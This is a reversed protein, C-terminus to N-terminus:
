APRGALVDEIFAVIETAAPDILHGGGVMVLSANPLLEALM